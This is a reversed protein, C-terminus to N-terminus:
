YAVMMLLKDMDQENGVTDVFLLEQCLVADNVSEYTAHEPFGVLM